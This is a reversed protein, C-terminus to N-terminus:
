ICETATHARITAKPGLLQTQVLDVGAFCAHGAQHVVQALREHGEIHEVFGTSQRVFLEGDHFLVGFFAVARQDLAPTPGTGSSTQRCWWSFTLPM